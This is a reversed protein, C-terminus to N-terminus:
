TVGHTVLQIDRFYLTPKNVALGANLVEACELRSARRYNVKPLLGVEVTINFHM